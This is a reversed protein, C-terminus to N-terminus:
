RVADKLESSIKFKVVRHAPVIIEEKTNPNFGVREPKEETSFKGFGQLSFEKGDILAESMASILDELIEGTEKQTRNLKGSVYKIFDNKKMKEM